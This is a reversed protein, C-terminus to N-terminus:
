RYRDKIVGWTARETAEGSCGASATIAGVRVGCPNAATFCPSNVHLWYSSPAPEKWFCFMPDLGFDNSGLTCGSANVTNLFFDNCSSAVAGGACQVGTDAHYVINRTFTTSGGLFRAGSSCNVITENRLVPGGGQVEVGTGCSDIVSFWVTPTSSGGSISIGRNCGKVTVYQVLPSANEIALATEFGRFVLSNLTFSAVGRITICTGSGPSPAVFYVQQDQDITLAKGDIVINGQHYVGGAILIYDGTVASDVASQLTPTKGSGDPYVFWTAAEAGCAMVTVALTIIFIMNRM